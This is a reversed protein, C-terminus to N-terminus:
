IRSPVFKDADGKFQQQLYNYDRKLREFQRLLETYDIVAKNLRENDDDFTENTSKREAESNM